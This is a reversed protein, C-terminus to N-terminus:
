VPVVYRPSHNARWTLFADRADSHLDRCFTKWGPMSKFSHTTEKALDDGVQRLTDVIDEYLREISAIHSPDQCHVNDCWDLSHDCKVKGLTVKTANKYRTLQEATAHDWHIRRAHSTPHHSISRYLIVARQLSVSFCMAEHDFSVMGCKVGVSDVLAHVSIYEVDSM